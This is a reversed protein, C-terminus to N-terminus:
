GFNIQDHKAERKEEPNTTSGMVRIRATGRPNTEPDFELSIITKQDPNTTIEIDTSNEAGLVVLKGGVIELHTKFSGRAPRNNKLLDDWAVVEAERTSHIAPPTTPAPRPAPYYVPRPPPPATAAEPYYYQARAMAPQRRRLLLFVVLGGILMEGLIVTGALSWGFGGNGAMLGTGVKAFVAYMSFHSFHGTIRFNEGDLSYDCKDWTSTAPNFYAIYLDSVGAGDPLQTADFSYIFTVPQSFTAGTPGLECVLMPKVASPASALMVPATVSIATLPFGDSQLARTGKKMSVTIVSSGYKLDTTYDDQLVGGADMVRSLDLLQPTGGGAVVSGGGGGGTTTTPPPTTAAATTTFTSDAGFVTASGAAKARYHYTTNPALNTLNASYAGAAALSQTSTASGYSTSTGYEFNVTILVDTGVATLNGNLKAATATVNEKSGTTVALAPTAATTTFTVDDGYATTSGVTAKARCHYTSGASLGSISATFTGASTKDQATTVTGYSTTTGYEFSVSVTTNGGMSSLNGNLITSTTTVSSASSTAVTPATLGAATTSFTMDSGTYTIGGVAAKARYHYATSATLGTLNATFVGTASVTQATTTSGYSTTAGWEFSVAASTATGLSTLNGNLTATTSALSSAASTTVAPSAQQQSGVTISGNVVTTNLSNSDETADTLQAESLTFAATGTFGAKAQMHLVYFDGQGTVGVGVGQGIIAVGVVSSGTANTQKPFRGATNDIIPTNPQWFLSLELHQYAFADFLTGKTFSNCQVQAPDWALM